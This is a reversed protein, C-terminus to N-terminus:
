IGLLYTLIKKIYFNLLYAYHKYVLKWVVSTHAPMHLRISYLVIITYDLLNNLRSVTHQSQQLTPGMIPRKRIPTPVPPILGHTLANPPSWNEESWTPGGIIVVKYLRNDELHITNISVISTPHM